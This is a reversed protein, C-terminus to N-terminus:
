NSVIKFQVQPPMEIAAARKEAEMRVTDEEAARQEAEVQRERDVRMAEVRTQWKDSVRVAEELINGEEEMM